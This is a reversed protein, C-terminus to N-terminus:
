IMTESFYCVSELFMTRNHLSLSPSFHRSVLVESLALFFDWLSTKVSILQSFLGLSERFKDLYVTLWQCILDVHHTGGRGLDLDREVTGCPRHEPIDRGESAKSGHLLCRDELKSKGNRELGGEM